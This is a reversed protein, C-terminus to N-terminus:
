CFAVELGQKKIINLLKLAAGSPTKDGIEWHKVTSASVNLIHAFIPQSLKERKRIKKIEAPSLEKVPPLYGCLVDFHKMTVEDVLGIDHLDKVSEHVAELISKNM